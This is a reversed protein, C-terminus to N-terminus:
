RRELALRVGLGILLAGTIGEMTRKVAPRVLWVRLRGVLMAVSFLWGFSFVLHISGLTIARLLVPDGPRIFQPLFALYFLAVKPNLINTLLGNAFYHRFSRPATTTTGSAAHAARGRVAEVISQVGLWALYAAGVLKVAEFATASRVLLLSLGLASFAAHVLLGSCGGLGTMVGGRRGGSLTNRLVLMTDAGPTIALVFAVGMFTLMQPDPM